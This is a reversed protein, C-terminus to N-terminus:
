PEREYVGRERARGRMQAGEADGEQQRRGQQRPEVRRKGIAHAGTVGDCLCGRWLALWVLNIGLAARFGDQM